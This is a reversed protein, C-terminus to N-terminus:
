FPKLLLFQLVTSGTGRYLDPIWSKGVDATFMTNWPTKFTVAVGTGTVSRWLDRRNPDRGRAHDLFLDLRYFGFVNFSYSGRALALEPFRIGAAPVGHMRVEDFLGFQYM